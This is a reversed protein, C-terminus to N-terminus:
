NTNQNDESTYSIADDHWFFGMDTNMKDYALAGIIASVLVAVAIVLGVIARNRVEIQKRMFEFQDRYELSKEDMFRRMTTRDDQLTNKDAELRKIVDQQHEMKMSLNKSEQVDVEDPCYEEFFDVGVFAKVLMRITEYKYDPHEGSFLRDVTGKPVGSKEALEANTWGLHKKRQKCFEMLESSTLSILNSGECDEGLRACLACKRYM